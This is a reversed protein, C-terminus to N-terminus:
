RDKEEEWKRTDVWRSGEEKRRQGERGGERGRGMALKIIIAKMTKVNWLKM